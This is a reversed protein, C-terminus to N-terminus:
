QVQVVLDDYEIAFPVTLNRVASGGLSLTMTSSPIAHAATVEFPTLADIAVQIHAAGMAGLTITMKVTHFGSNALDVLGTDVNTGCGSYTEQLDFPGTGDRVLFFGETTCGGTPMTWRLQVLDIEATGPATSTYKIRFAVTVKSTAAPLNQILFAGDGTAPLTVLLTGMPTITVTGNSNTSMGNWGQQPPPPRDFDDCFTCGAGSDPADGAGPGGDGIEDFNRRGCGVLAIAVCL